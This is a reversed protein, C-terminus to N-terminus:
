SSVLSSLASFYMYAVYHRIELRVRNKKGQDIQINVFRCNSFKTVHRPVYVTIVDNQNKKKVFVSIFDVQFVNKKEVM